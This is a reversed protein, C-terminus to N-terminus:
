GCVGMSRSPGEPGNANVAATLADLVIQARIADNTKGFAVKTRGDNYLAVARGDTVTVSRAGECEFLPDFVVSFRM